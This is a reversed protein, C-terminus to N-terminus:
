FTKAWDEGQIRRVGFNCWGAEIRLRPMEFGCYWNIRIPNGNLYGYFVAYEALHSRVTRIPTIREFADINEETKLYALLDGLHETAANDGIADLDVADFADWPPLDRAETEESSTTWIPSTWLLDDNDQLVRLYYWTTGAPPRDDLTTSFDLSAPEWSALRRDGRILDVRAIPTTGHINFALNALGDIECESGMPEGNLTFDILARAGTSAYVRRAQIAEWIADRTLENALVGFLPGGGYGSDRYRLGHMLRGGGAGIKRPWGPTGTHGDSGGILGVKFGKQLWAQAFWEFNGHGSCIEVCRELDPDHHDPMAISGGV